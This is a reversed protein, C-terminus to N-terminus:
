GRVFGSTDYRAKGKAKLGVVVGRADLHRLDNDDGDIVSWQPAHKMHRVGSVIRGARQTCFLTSSPDKFVAAVNGGARLVAVADADNDESLSFLLHYNSPLDGAAWALARKTVKTYDYFQIEAFLEM